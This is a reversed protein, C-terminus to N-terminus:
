APWVWPVLVIALVYIIVTLPAGVILFDSFRYKGPGYVMLCSPELPTLYSCSAAVAVMMGFARPDGGLQIGTQIAIPLVVLAAAQNSMPQTLAVTLVFFSTLLLFRSDSGILGILQEALYKGTGTAEMAAGFSLLAGILVLAKWEVQRYAEEPSICRTVLIAFAGAIMAVPLSTVGATSAIIAAAFIAVALPARARNFREREIGGFINFLNGRELAKVNEPKGQLLLVDGMRLRADSITSPVRGARHLALVRLGYRDKFELRRLMQGILPAGPLLVAEVITPEDREEKKKEKDNDTQKAKDEEKGNREAAQQEEEALQVDAKFDLGDIDKIKLLDARLGEIILEDGAKLKLQELKGRNEITEGDRILKIVHLEAIGGLKAEALTKGMLPGGDVVLVDAEYKREGITEPEAPEAPQRLLRTGFLWIYLVGAIAIPLGVPALEFMGIAPQGARVMLGSVILNTSTSILTVSSTLISAFALPLLFQSPSVRTKAAYGIVLPVFFATAATNSMFASIVAISVLMVPLFVSANQGAFGFLWRGVTDVVGTRVLGASMVLLGFIMLVTDSGFGAFAKDPPLLGTAMVALMVGLAIVDAPIRDWAFLVVASGLIILCITIQATMNLEKRSQPDQESVLQQFQRTAAPRRPPIEYRECFSVRM